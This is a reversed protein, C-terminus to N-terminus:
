IHYLLPKSIFEAFDQSIMLINEKNSSTAINLRNNSQKNLIINLEYLDSIDNDAVVERYCIQIALIEDISYAIKKGFGQVSWM